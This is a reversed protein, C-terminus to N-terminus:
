AAQCFGWYEGDWFLQDELAAAAEEGILAALQRYHVEWRQRAQEDDVDAPYLARVRDKLADIHDDRNM